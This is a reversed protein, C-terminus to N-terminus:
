YNTQIPAKSNNTVKITIFYRDYSGWASISSSMSAPDHRFKVGDVSNYSLIRFDEVKSNDLVQIGWFATTSSCGSIALIAM